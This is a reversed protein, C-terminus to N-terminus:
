EDLIIDYKLKLLAGQKNSNSIFLHYVGYQNSCKYDRNDLNIGTLIWKDIKVLSEKKPLKISFRSSTVFVQYARFRGFYLELSENFLLDEDGEIFEVIIVYSHGTRKGPFENVAYLSDLKKQSVGDILRSFPTITLLLTKNGCSDYTTQIFNLIASELITDSIQVEDIYRTLLISDKQSFAKSGTLLVILVLLIRIIISKM